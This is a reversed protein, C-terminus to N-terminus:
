WAASIPEGDRAIVRRDRRPHPWQRRTRGPTFPADDAGAHGRGSRRCPNALLAHRGGNAIMVLFRMYDRATSVLGGGGSLRAPSKRYRSRAPADRLRLKGRRSSAYNAAFRDLKGDPVFFATDKMDLPKFLREAFFKDLPKKSVVEIVRGLVDVSISYRWDKGPEYALPIRGLKRCMADLSSNRDLVNAKRYMADVATNGSLGYTLGSTHRLLDRVTM